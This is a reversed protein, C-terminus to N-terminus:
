NPAAFAYLHEATRVYMVNDAIAPTAATREGLPPNKAVVKPKPAGGELVTVVGDDLSVFYVNGNAAVPSAYYGGTADLRKQYLQDGTNADYATIMGGDKIMLYQGLYCIASSVYPLGKTQKWLMASETVNGTGGPKLAFASAKSNAAFKVVAEWEDRSIKGDKNADQNDFLDKFGAPAEEKSLTGDHDTDDKLIADFSPFQFENDDPGGPSWGAFLL